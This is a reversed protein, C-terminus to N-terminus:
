VVSKRDLRIPARSLEAPQDVAFTPSALAALIVLTPRCTM